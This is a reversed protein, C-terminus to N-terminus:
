RERRTEIEHEGERQHYHVMLRYSNLWPLPCCYLQWMPFKSFAESLWICRQIAFLFDYYIRPYGTMYGDMGDTNHWADLCIAGDHDELGGEKGVMVWRVHGRGDM